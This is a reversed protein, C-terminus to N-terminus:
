ACRAGVVTVVYRHLEGVGELDEVLGIQPHRSFRGGPGLGQEGEVNVVEDGDVCVLVRGRAPVDGQGARQGRAVAKEERSLDRRQLRQAQRVGPAEIWVGDLCLQVPQGHEDLLLLLAGVAQAM